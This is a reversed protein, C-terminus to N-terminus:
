GLFLFLVLLQPNSSLGQRLSILFLLLVSCKTDEKPTQMHACVWVQVGRGYAGGGPWM